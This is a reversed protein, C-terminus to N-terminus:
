DEKEKCRWCVNRRGAYCDEAEQKTCIDICHRRNDEQLCADCLIAVYNSGFLLAESYKLTTIM